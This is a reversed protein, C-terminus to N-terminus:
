TCFLPELHGARTFNSKLFSKFAVDECFFRGFAFAVQSFVPHNM